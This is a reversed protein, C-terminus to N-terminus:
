CSIPPKEMHRTALGTDIWLEYLKALGQGLTM